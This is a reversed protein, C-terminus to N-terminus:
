GPQPQVPHRQSPLRQMEVVALNHNSPTGRHRCVSSKHLAQLRSVAAVHQVQVRGLHVGVAAGDRHAVGQAGGTPVKKLIKKVRLRNM